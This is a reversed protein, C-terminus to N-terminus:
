EVELDDGKQILVGSIEQGNKKECSFDRIEKFVVEAYDIPCVGSPGFYSYAIKYACGGVGIESVVRSDTVLGMFQAELQECAFSEATSILLASVILSRIM